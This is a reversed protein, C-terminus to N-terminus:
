HILKTSVRSLRVCKMSLVLSLTIFVLFFRSKSIGSSSVIGEEEHESSNVLEIETGTVQTTSKLSMGNAVRHAIRARQIRFHYVLHDHNSAWKIVSSFEPTPRRDENIKFSRRLTDGSSLVRSAVILDRTLQVAGPDRDNYEM